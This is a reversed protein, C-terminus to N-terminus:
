NSAYNNDNETTSSLSFEQDIEELMEELEELQKTLSDM